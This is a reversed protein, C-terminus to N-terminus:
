DVHSLRRTGTTGIILESLRIRQWRQRRLDLSGRTLMAACDADMLKAVAMLPIGSFSIGL